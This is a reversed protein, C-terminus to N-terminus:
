SQSQQNDRRNDAASAGELVDALAAAGRISLSVSTLTPNCSNATPILGNGALILGPVGWVRSYTDCVSTGDDAPGMRVTGMYHLSSGQPMLVPMNEVFEGLAAAARAQHKRARDLEAHERDTLEYAIQISPLGNEDPQADDFILRDEPRPWKRVGWGMGVYGAKNDRYPSDEPLPAPCIPSYMLQAHYPHREEDYGISVVASIPDYGPTQPASMLGERVAVVGFVLPHETLYRGLAEPRIGSAWLLQPTRIADAAVVTYHARVEEEAGTRQDRLVAGVVRDNERILRVCLTSSRLTFRPDSVVDGLVVDTGSWRLSGDPRSDAAVPLPRVTIGDPAFEAGVTDLIAEAQPAGSFAAKTVHLLQEAATIHAEWEDESLFPIRESGQPRPTACTWHAGQGGVCTAVAAAPMGSSGEASRGILHTGQRATVTGEVVVGGPIGSIGAEARGQSALRAAAQEEADPINKVNMGLPHDIVPGAEVMLVTAEPLREILTRAYTAGNPGSGVILV